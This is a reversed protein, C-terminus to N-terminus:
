SLEVKFHSFKIIFIHSQSKYTIFVVQRSICSVMSATSSGIRCFMLISPCEEPFAFFVRGDTSMCSIEQLILYFHSLLFHKQVEKDFDFDLRIFSLFCLQANFYIGVFPSLRLM